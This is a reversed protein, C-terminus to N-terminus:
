RKSCDFYYITQFESGKCTGELVQQFVDMIIEKVKAEPFLQNLSPRIQFQGIEDEGNATTESAKSLKKNKPIAGTATSTM